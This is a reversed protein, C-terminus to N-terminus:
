QLMNIDICLLDGDPDLNGDLDVGSSEGTFGDPRHCDVWTEALGDGDLDSACGSNLAPIALDPDNYPVGTV